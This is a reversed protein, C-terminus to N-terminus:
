AGTKRLLTVPTLLLVALDMSWSRNEVYYLDYQMNDHIKFARDESIQWLGTLGPKVSLRQREIEGYQAVIFPMEPRPGVLSMDGRLVNWLQPLEDLSLCRLWRGFPTIRPDAPSEPHYAYKPADVRMTRLKYITFRKGNLGVREQKFFAPGPSTWKVLLACLAILPGTFVLLTASVVIDTARKAIEYVRGAAPGRPSFVPVAGVQGFQYRLLMMDGSSPVFFYPLNTKELRSVFRGLEDPPLSPLALFVAGVRLKEALRELHRGSGLVPIREGERGAGARIREGHLDPDDDIFGVPRLGLSHDELLQQALLRGTSGAGYILVPISRGLSGRIKSRLSSLLAREAVLSMTVIPAVMVLTLRSFHPIRLLFSLALLLGLSSLVARIVRRVAEIQLLGLQGRYAGHGQLSVVTVCALALSLQAYLQPAFHQRGLGSALYLGYTLIGALFITAFDAVIHVARWALRPELRLSARRQLPLAEAQPLATDVVGETM